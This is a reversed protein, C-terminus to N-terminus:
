GKARTMLHRLPLADPDFVSGRDSPAINVEPNVFESGIM